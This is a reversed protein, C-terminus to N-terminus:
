LPVYEEIFRPAAVTQVGSAYGQILRGLLLLWFNEIMTLSVGFFGLGCCFMIATRRGGKVIYGGTAAGVTMGAVMAAGILSQHVDKEPKTVWNYKVNFTEALQNTEAIGYGINFGSMMMTIM